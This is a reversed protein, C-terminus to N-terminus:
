LPAAYIVPSPIGPVWPTCQEWRTKLCAVRNLMITTRFLHPNPPGKKALMANSLYQKLSTM